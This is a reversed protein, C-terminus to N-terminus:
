YSVNVGDPLGGYENSTQTSDMFLLEYWLILSLIPVFTLLVMWGSKGRDHFRRVLSSIHIGIGALIGGWSITFLLISLFVTVEHSLRQISDNNTQLIAIYLVPLIFISVLAILGRLIFGKRNIRGDLGVFWKWWKWWKTVEGDLVSFLNPLFNGCKHCTVDFPGARSECNDCLRINQTM